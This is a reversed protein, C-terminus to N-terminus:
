ASKLKLKNKKEAKLQKDSEKAHHLGQKTVEYFGITIKSHYYILKAQVQRVREDLMEQIDSSLNDGRWGSSFDRINTVRCNNSEITDRPKGNEEGDNTEFTAIFLGEPYESNTFKVQFFGDGTVGNRQYNLEIFKLKGM